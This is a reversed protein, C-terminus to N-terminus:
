SNPQGPAAPQMPARSPAAVLRLVSVAFLLALCAAPVIMAGVPSGVAQAVSPMLNQGLFGGLLGITNVVAISTAGRSGKFLRSPFFWFCPFLISICPTGVALALFRLTNSPLMTAAVFCVVGIATFAVAAKVISREAQLRRPITFLLVAVLAWPVANLLGNQTGSVGFGKIVTPLWYIVGFLSINILTYVAALGLVKGDLMAGLPNGGHEPQNQRSALWDKEQESLFTTSRPNDPLFRLVVLSLLIPPIGTVIFVWQWGSLGIMGHLDLLPGAILASLMNGFASGLTLLGVARVRHREPFWLTLYFIIAPYLGGEAAGLLFRLAYFTLGSSAFALCVTLLGWTLAIRAFWLRAGFRYAAMASPIEVAVYSFFFLSSGLAFGVESLNMEEIMQLKAFGINSRDIIACLYLGVVMPMIRWTLRGILKDENVAQNPNM